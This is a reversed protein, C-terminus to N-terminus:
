GKLGGVTLNGMMKDKLFLFIILIPALVVMCAAMKEPMSGNLPNNTFNYLGVAITPYANWYVLPTQYDNWFGVFTILFLVVITNKMLPFIVGFMVKAHSAGDIFAAESYGKAVGKFGAYLILFNLGQFNINQVYVGWITDLLGISHLLQIMSPMAGVIPIIMVIIVLTHVFKSFKYNYKACLYAVIAATYIRLISSGVSYVISNWFMELFGYTYSKGSPLRRTVYFGTKTDTFMRGYNDFKFEAPLGFFTKRYETISRFSNVLGILIIFLLLACSLTLITGVLIRYWNDAFFKGTKKTVTKIKNNKNEVNEM